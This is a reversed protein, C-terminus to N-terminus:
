NCPANDERSLRCMDEMFRCIQRKSYFSDSNNDDHDDGVEDVDDFLAFVFEM